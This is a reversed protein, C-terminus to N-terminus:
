QALLPLPLFFLSFVSAPPLPLPKSRAGLKWRERWHCHLPNFAALVSVPQNVPSSHTLSHTPFSPLPPPPPPPSPSSSSSSPVTEFKPCELERKKQSPAEIVQAVKRSRCLLMITEELHSERFTVENIRFVQPATRM